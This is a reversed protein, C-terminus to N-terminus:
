EDNDEGQELVEEDLVLSGEFWAGKGCCSDGVETWEKCQPCMGTKEESM